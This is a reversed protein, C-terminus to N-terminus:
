FSGSVRVVYTGFNVKANEDLANPLAGTALFRSSTDDKRSQDFYYAVYGIQTSLAPVYKGYKSSTWVSGKAASWFTWMAEWNFSQWDKGKGGAASLYLKSGKGFKGGTFGFVRSVDMEGWAGLTFLTASTSGNSSLAGVTNDTVDVTDSYMQVGVMPGITLGRAYGGMPTYGLQANVSYLNLKFDVDLSHGNRLDAGILRGNSGTSQNYTGSATNSINIWDGVFKVGSNARPIAIGYAARQVSAFTRKTGVDTLLLTPSAGSGGLDGASGGGPTISLGSLAGQGGEAAGPAGQAGSFAGADGSPMGARGAEGAGVPPGCLGASAVAVAFLAAMLVVLRSRRM